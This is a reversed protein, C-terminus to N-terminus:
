LLAGIEGVLVTKLLSGANPVVEVGKGFIPIMGARHEFSTKVFLSIKLRGGNRYALNQYVIHYLTPQKQPNFPITIYRKIDNKLINQTHKHSHEVAQFGQM